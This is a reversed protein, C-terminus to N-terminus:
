AAGALWAAALQAARTGCASHRAQSQRVAGGGAVAAVALARAFVAPRHRAQAAAHGHCRPGHAHPASRVPERRVVRGHTVLQGWGCRTLVISGQFGWGRTRARTACRNRELMFAVAACTEDAYDLLGILAPQRQGVVQRPCARASQRMERGRRGHMTGRYADRLRGALPSPPRPRVALSYLLAMKLGPMLRDAAFLEFYTPRSSGAGAEVGLLSGGLLSM